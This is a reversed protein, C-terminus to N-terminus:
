RNYWQILENVQPKAEDAEMIELLGYYFLQNHTTRNNKHFTAM